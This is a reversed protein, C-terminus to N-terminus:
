TRREALRIGLAALGLGLVLSAVAHAAALGLRGDQLFTWVELSFTSFTTFSGLLGTCLLPIALATHPAAQLFRTLLYGLALSGLLNAALTGLPLAGRGALLASVAIRLGGGLMGGVFVAVVRRWRLPVRSSVRRRPAALVHLIRYHEDRRATELPPAM